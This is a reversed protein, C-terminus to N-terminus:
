LRFYAFKWGFLGEGEKDADIRRLRMFGRRFNM